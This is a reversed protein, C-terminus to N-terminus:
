NVRRVQVGNITMTNPQAQPPQEEARKLKARVIADIAILQSKAAEPHMGRDPVMALLMKQDQDTFTGEGAGRFLQKLVPAMMAVAGDAIQANATLAPMIGSVPGTSTAGLSDALNSVATEYVNFALENSRQEGAQKVDDKAQGVARVVAAEVEPKLKLHASLKKTEKRAEIDSESVAVKETLREDQAIRERASLGARPDLGLKIREAKRKDEESLGATLAEFTQQEATVAATDLGRVRMAQSLGKGYADWQRKALEGVEGGKNMADILQLGIQTDSTNTQGRARLQSLRGLGREAAADFDGSQVLENLETYGTYISELQRNREADNIAAEAQQVQTDLMRKRLPALARQEQLQQLMGGARIGQSVAGTLDPARGQLLINPNIAM